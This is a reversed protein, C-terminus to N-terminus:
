RPPRTRRHCSRVDRRWRIALMLGPRPSAGDANALVGWAASADTIHTPAPALDESATETHPHGPKEARDPDLQRLHHRPAALEM